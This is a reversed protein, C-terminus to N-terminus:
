VRATPRLANEMGKTDIYTSQGGEGIETYKISVIVWRQLDEARKMLRM